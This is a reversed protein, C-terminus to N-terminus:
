SGIEQLSPACVYIAENVKLKKKKQQLSYFIPSLLLLLRVGPYNFEELRTRFDLPPRLFLNRRPPALKVALRGTNNERTMLFWYISSSGYM